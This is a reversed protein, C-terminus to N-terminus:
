LTIIADREAGVSVHKLPAEGFVAIRELFRQAKAPLQSWTRCGTTPTRWGPWTEYVPTARELDPTDPVHHVVQGDILYAVCIKVEDFHDLM